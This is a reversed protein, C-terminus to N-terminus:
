LATNQDRTDKEKQEPPVFSGICIVVLYHTCTYTCMRRDFMRRDFKVNDQTWVNEETSNSSFANCATWDM